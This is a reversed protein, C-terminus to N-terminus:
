SKLTKLKAFEKQKTLLIGRLPPILPLALAKEITYLKWPEHKHPETNKIDKFLYQSLNVEFYFCKFENEVLCDILKFDYMQRTMGTEELLERKAALIACEDKEVSGGAVAYKGVFSRCPAKRRTLMIRPAYEDNLRFWMMVATAKSM